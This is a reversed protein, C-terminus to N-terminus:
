WPTLGASMSVRTVRCSSVSIRPMLPILSIREVELSPKEMISTSNLGSISISVARARTRSLTSMALLSRGGSMSSSGRTSSTSREWIGTIMM